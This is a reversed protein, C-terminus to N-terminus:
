ELQRLTPDLTDRMWDGFLNLSLVTLLIAMGPLTAIWWAGVLRDRGDAVMAGWAPTPPPVGVGLFSLMAELIIIMGVQLTALVILTNIVGPLLHKFMIRWTSAGSVQAMAVYDMAKLKLVEGRVMRAFRPWVGVAM